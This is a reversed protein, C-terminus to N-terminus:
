VLADGSGDLGTDGPGTGRQGTGRQWLWAQLHDGRAVLRGDAVRADGGDDGLGPLRLPGGGAFEVEVGDHLHVRALGTAPDAEYHLRGQARAVIGAATIEPAGLIEITAPTAARRQDRPLRARLGRGTLRGSREGEFVLVVPEDPSATTLLLEDELIRARANGLEFRLGALETGPLSVLVCERLDVEKDERLSPNGTADRSLEVFAQDATLKGVMVGDDFLDVEVGDLQQLGDRVPQSDRARLVFVELHRLGGDAARITRYRPVEIRGHQSVTANVKGQQVSLGGQGRAEPRQGVRRDQAGRVLEDDGIALYMAVVGATLLVVFWLLRKV